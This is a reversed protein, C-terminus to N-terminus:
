HAAISASAAGAWSTASAQLGTWASTSSPVALLPATTSSRDPACGVCLSSAPNSTPKCAHHTDHAATSATLRRLLLLPHKHHPPACAQMVSYGIAFPLGVARWRVYETATAIMEPSLSAVAGFFAPTAVLLVAAIAICIAASLALAESVVVGTYSVCLWERKVVRHFARIPSNMAHTLAESNVPMTIREAPAVLATGSTHVCLGVM